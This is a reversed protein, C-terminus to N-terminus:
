RDWIRKFLPPYDVVLGAADVTLEATFSGDLSEFRYRGSAPTQALCTYRQRERSLTLEPVAVYAVEIEAAEGPRLALRRVPLTNTFPTVSIDLDLCGDLDPLHRADPDTWRGEGDARLGLRRREDPLALDASRVRWGQDCEVRYRLRFPQDGDLGIVLGTAVAGKTGEQLRLHELGPAGLPQWLVDHRM